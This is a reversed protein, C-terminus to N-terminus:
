APYRSIDYLVNATYAILEDNTFGKIDPTKKINIRNQDVSGTVMASLQESAILVESSDTSSIAKRVIKAADTLGKEILLTMADRAQDKRKENLTQGIELTELGFEERKRTIEKNITPIYSMLEEVPDAGDNYAALFAFGTYRGIIYTGPYNPVSALNNFQAKINDLETQTWPLEELAQKNATNYKASPGMIAVMENSYDAQCNPGTFWKMFEWAKAQQEAGECGKVMVTAAVSSVTCNNVTVNGDEDTIETGPLPVFQWLGEIETAFVKLQNYLTTYDAVVVPMEGTRFRNAANYIYPFGHDTFLQATKQFATLGIKSDLNIRMGDDAFLDGGMQYLFIQFDTTLGIEMNQAELVNKIAMIDGWTKPIEVNLDALIDTRVFMMAFGQAEPLGYYHLVGEADEIGLVLMAAHNFYSSTHEEFGSMNEIPLVASRIAYNIVDAQGLGLYVDPGEGALISPLLTGAAVLRLDVPSGNESSAFDNNILTRIVQSQDRGSALWVEVGKGITEEDMIGMGDYDRFFSWFFSKIEHVLTKWFGATAVPGEEADSPQIVMYDIQLPQSKIDTLFTGLNGIYSKLRNLNKAVEDEDTGMTYLLASVKQLTGVYSSKQGALKTLKQAVGLEDEKDNDLVKSQKAMDQMQDNMITLFKYDRNADPTTGTLKLISLYDDNISDLANQVDNIIEGLAGLTVELKMTYTVGAELYIDFSQSDGDTDQTKLDTVQWDADYNYALAAAEAFPVGNYYGDDGESLGESYIYLARNVFIGDLVNQRFRTFIDYMGSSGVSFKYTVAQGVTQWKEAGMTNLLTRNTASPSNVASSRDEIAYITKDTASATYEGELKVTDKGPAKGAYRQAYEEYSILEKSPRLTFSKIAMNENEGDLTIITEGASFAFEFPSKEFGSSDKLTYTQWLPAQVAEPRLENDYVDIKMFRISYKECFNSRAQTWVDPYVFKLKGGDEYYEIGAEAAEAKVVDTSAKGTYIADVYDNTWNKTFELYRAEAFPVKNNIKLVREIPAAKGEIAYYEIEITYKGANELEFKWSLSGTATSVVCDEGSGLGYRGEENVIKDAHEERDVLADVADIVIVSEGKPIGANDVSYKKYPVANLLERIDALTQGTSSTGGSGGATKVEAASVPLVFCGIVFMLCLLMATLRQFNTKKM